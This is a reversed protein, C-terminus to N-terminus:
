AFHNDSIPNTGVATPMATHNVTRDLRAADQYRDPVFTAGKRGKNLRPEILLIYSTRTIAVSGFSMSISDVAPLRTAKKAVSPTSCISNVSGQSATFSTPLLGWSIEM